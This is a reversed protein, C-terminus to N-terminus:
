RAAYINGGEDALCEYWATRQTIGDEPYSYRDATRRLGAASLADDIAIFIPRIEAKSGSPKNSIVSVKLHVEAYTEEHSSIRFRAPASNETELVYVAPFSAPASSLESTVYISDDYQMVANYAITFIKHEIDIM